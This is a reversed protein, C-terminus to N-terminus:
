ASGSEGRAVVVAAALDGTVNVATRCMDLFRDVGLVVGIGEAPVGVLVGAVVALAIWTFNVIEPHLLTGFIALSMGGVGAAVGQRATKPRNLWRLSFIFLAAAALYSAHTVFESGSM